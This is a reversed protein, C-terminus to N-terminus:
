GVAASEIEDAFDFGLKGFDVGDGDAAVACIFVNASAGLRAEIVVQDFGDADLGQAVSQGSLRNTVDVIGLTGDCEVEASARRVKRRRRAGPLTSLSVLYRCLHEVKRGGWVKTSVRSRDEISCIERAQAEWDM